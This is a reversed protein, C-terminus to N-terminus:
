RGDDVAPDCPVDHNDADQHAEQEGDDGKGDPIVKGEILGAAAGCMMFTLLRSTSVDRIKADM